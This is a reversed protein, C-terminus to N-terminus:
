IGEEKLEEFLQKAKKSLKEPIQIHIKVLLNGRAKKDGGSGFKSDLPVGKGKVRLIENPSTGAPIKLDIEGDLTEISYTAGLLADTLKVKLDMLLDTGRKEFRKDDLVHVKVYLDGSVGNQVAEGAGSLRIMEGNEIGAPVAIKIEEQGKKVGVGKCTTCKEEPVEGRGHCEPCTTVTAFSGFMSNKTEHIKGKGSCTECTKQKSGPEAGNGNCHDCTSTKNILIKRETGFISEKFDLEVDM